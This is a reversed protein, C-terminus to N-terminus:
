KSVAAGHVASTLATIQEELRGLQLQMGDVRRGLSSGLGEIAEESSGGSVASAEAEDDQLYQDQLQRTLQSSRRSTRGHVAIRFGMVKSRSDAPCFYRLARHLAHPVDVFLIYVVNLPVPLPDRLDKYERILQVKQQQWQEYGQETMQDFRAGMQAILLNIMVITMFFTYLFILIDCAFREYGLVGPTEVHPFYDIVQERHYDGLMAWFPNSLPLNSGFMEAPMLVTYAMGFGASVFLTICLWSFIDMTMKLIVLYLIGFREFIGLLKIYRAFFIITSFAYILPVYEAYAHRRSHAEAGDASIRLAAATLFLSYNFLEIINNMHYFYHFLEAKRETREYEDRGMRYMQKVEELMSCVVWCWCVIERFLIESSSFRGSQHMWARLHRSGIPMGTLFSILLFMFVLKLTAEVYFKVKPAVLVKSLREIWDGTHPLYLNGILWLYLPVGIDSFYHERTGWYSDDQELATSQLSRGIVAHARAM